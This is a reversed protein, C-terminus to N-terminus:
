HIKAWFLQRNWNFDALQKLGFEALIDVTLCVAKADM